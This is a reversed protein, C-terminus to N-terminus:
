FPPEDGITKSLPTSPSIKNGKRVGPKPNSIREPKPRPDKGGRRASAVTYAREAERQTQKRYERDKRRSARGRRVTDSMAADVGLGARGLLVVGVLLAVAGLLIKGLRQLFDPSVIRVLFKVIDQMAQAIGDIGSTVAGAGDSVANGAEDLVNKPQLSMADNAANQFVAKLMGNEAFKSCVVWDQSFSNGAAKYLEYAKKANCVNDRWCAMDAPSSGHAQPNIQFLGLGQRTPSWVKRQFRSECFAVAIGRALEDRTVDWGAALMVVGCEKATLQNKKRLADVYRKNNWSDSQATGGAFANGGRGGKHPKNRKRRRPPENVRTAM